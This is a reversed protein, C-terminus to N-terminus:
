LYDQHDLQIRVTRGYHDLPVTLSIGVTQTYPGSEPWHHVHPDNILETITASAPIPEESVFVYFNHLRSTPAQTPATGSRSPM